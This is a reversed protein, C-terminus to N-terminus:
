QFREILICQLKPENNAEADKNDDDDDDDDAAVNTIDYNM